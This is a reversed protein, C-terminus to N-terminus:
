WDNEHIVFYCIPKAMGNFTTSASMTYAGMDKFVLWDGDYLEPLETKETICDLGDCTPGWISSTYRPQDIYQQLNLM